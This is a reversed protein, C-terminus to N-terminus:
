HFELSQIIDYLEQEETSNRNIETEIQLGKVEEPNIGEFIHPISLTFGLGTDRFDTLHTKTGDSLYYFKRIFRKGDKVSESEKKHEVMIPTPYILISHKKPFDMISANKNEVSQIFESEEEISMTTLTVVDSAQSVWNERFDEIEKIAREAGPNNSLCEIEQDWMEDTTDLSGLIDGCGIEFVKELTYKIVSAERDHAEAIRWNDPYDISYSYTSNYYKGVDDLGNKNVFFWVAALILLIAIVTVLVRKLM